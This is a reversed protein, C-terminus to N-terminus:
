GAGLLSFPRRGSLSVDQQTRCERSTKAPSSVSSGLHHPGAAHRPQSASPSFPGAVRLKAVKSLTSRLARPRIPDKRSPQFCQTVRLAVSRIQVTSTIPPTRNVLQQRISLTTVGIDPSRRRKCYDVLDGASGEVVAPPGGPPEAQRDRHGSGAISISATGTGPTQLCRALSLLRFEDDELRRHRRYQAKQITTDLNIRFFVCSALTVPGLCFKYCLKGLNAIHRTFNSISVM